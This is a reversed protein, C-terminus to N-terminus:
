LEKVKINRFWIAHGHDQLAFRGSSFKGFDPREKFKSGAILSKWSDDWLTTTVVTVDNLKITLVGKNSVIEATNWEGVPKVPESSSKILDYLDGARHKTIKGDSHGDNDLVQIEPGTYWPYQYKKDEKVYIMIGSNAGPSVKWDVKFDFNAYEKESVIDGGGKIQWGNKQTTDLYISEDNINWAEGIGPKNYSHWGNTTKGDFLLKWGDQKEAASLTNPKQQAIGAVSLFIAAITLIKKM